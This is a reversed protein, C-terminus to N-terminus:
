GVHLLYFHLVINQAILRQIARQRYQTGQKSNDEHGATVITDLYIKIGFNPFSISGTFIQIEELRIKFVPDWKQYNLGSLTTETNRHRRLM